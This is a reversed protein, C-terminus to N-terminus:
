DSTMELDSNKRFDVVFQLGYLIGNPLGSSSERGLARTKLSTSSRRIVRMQTGDSLRVTSTSPGTPNVRSLTDYEDAYYDSCWSGVIEDQFFNGGHSQDTQFALEWEAETPLRVTLGTAVSIWSCLEVAGPFTLTDVPLEPNQTTFTQNEIQIRSWEHVSVYHQAEHFPISNLFRVAAGSSVLKSIAFPYTITVSGISPAGRTYGEATVQELIMLVRADPDGLTFEAPPVILADFSPDEASSPVIGKM